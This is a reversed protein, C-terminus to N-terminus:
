HTGHIFDELENTINIIEHTAESVVECVTRGEKISRAYEIRQYTGHLFIPLAFEKLQETIERGIVTGKIRRSVIFAAKLKGETLEIRENVLRVM